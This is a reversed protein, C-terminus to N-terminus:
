SLYIQKFLEWIVKDSVKDYGHMIRNRTDVIKRTNSIPLNEDLKLARSMAEGIITLNREVARKTKLDNSYQEFSYKEGSIFVEIEEICKRIDFLWTKIENQM